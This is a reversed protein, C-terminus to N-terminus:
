GLGRLIVRDSLSPLVTCLFLGSGSGVLDKNARQEHRKARM